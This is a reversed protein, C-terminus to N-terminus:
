RLCFVLRNGGSLLLVVVISRHSCCFQLRSSGPPLPHKFRRTVAALLAPCSLLHPALPLSPSDGWVSQGLQPGPCPVSRGKLAPGKQGARPQPASCSPRIEWRGAVAWPADCCRVPVGRPLSTGLRLWAQVPAPQLGGVGSGAETQTRRGSCREALGRSCRPAPCGRTRCVPSCHQCGSGPM